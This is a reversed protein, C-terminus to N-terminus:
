NLFHFMSGAPQGRPFTFSTSKEKDEEHQFAQYGALLMSWSLGKMVTFPWSHGLHGETNVNEESDQLNHDIVSSVFEHFLSAYRIFRTLVSSLFGCDVSWYGLM